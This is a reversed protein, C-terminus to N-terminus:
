AWAGVQFPLARADMLGANGLFWFGCGLLTHVWTVSSWVCRHAFDIVDYEGAAMRQLKTGAGAVGVECAFVGLSNFDIRWDPKVAFTAVLSWRWLWYRRFYTLM